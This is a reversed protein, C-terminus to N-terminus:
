VARPGMDQRHTHQQRVPPGRDGQRPHVGGGGGAGGVSLLIYLGRLTLELPDIKKIM